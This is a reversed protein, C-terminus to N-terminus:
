YCKLKFYPNSLNSIYCVNDQTSNGGVELHKIITYSSGYTNNGPNNNEM